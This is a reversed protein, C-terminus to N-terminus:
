PELVEKGVWGQPPLARLSGSTGPKLACEPWDLGNAHTGLASLIVIGGNHRWTQGDNGVAAAELEGATAAGLGREAESEAGRPAAAGM